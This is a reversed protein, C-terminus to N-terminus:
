ALYVSRLISTAVWPSVSYLIFMAFVLVYDADSYFKIVFRENRMSNLPMLFLAVQVSVNATRIM